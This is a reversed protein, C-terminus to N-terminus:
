HMELLYKQGSDLADSDHYVQIYSTTWKKNIQYSAINYIPYHVGAKDGQLPKRCLM